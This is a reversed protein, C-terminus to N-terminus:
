STMRLGQFMDNQRDRHIAHITLLHRAIKRNVARDGATTNGSQGNASRMSHSASLMTARRLALGGIAGQATHTGNTALHDHAKLHILLVAQNPHHNFSFRGAMLGFRWLM